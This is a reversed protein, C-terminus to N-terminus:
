PRRASLPPLCAARWCGPFRRRRSIPPRATPPRLGTSSFLSGGLGIFIMGIAFLWFDHRFLAIASMIGGFRDDGHGVSLRPPTRDPADAMRRAARGRLVSISVPSRLRQWRSTPASCISAPWDVWPFPSRTCRRRWLGAFCVASLANRRALNEADTPGALGVRDLFAMRDTRNRTEPRWPIQAGAPRAGRQRDQTRRGRLLRACCRCIRHRDRGGACGEQSSLEWAGARLIARLRRMSGRCAALGRDPKLPDGSRACAPKRGRRLRRGFWAADAPRYQEGDIEHGLRHAEYEAVIELVGAGGIDM